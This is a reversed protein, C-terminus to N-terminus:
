KCTSQETPRMMSEKTVWNGASQIYECVMAGILFGELDAIGQAAVAGDLVRHDFSLRVELGGPSDFMGYHLQSTLLPVLHTIGAGQSGLSSVVFTGFFQCRIPGLFNTAAWWLLRRFPWPIRSLRVAHCYSPINDEPQRQQDQIIADIEWSTLNEPSVIHAYLVVREDAFQRDINLTVIITFHEYFRPWPFTLYSTRFAPVRAAVLAFAKTFIGSWTPSPTYV